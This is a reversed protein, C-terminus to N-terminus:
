LTVLCLILRGCTISTACDHLMNDGGASLWSWPVMSLPWLGEGSHGPLMQSITGNLGDIFEM